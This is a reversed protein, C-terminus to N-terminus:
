GFFTSSTEFIPDTPLTAWNDTNSLTAKYSYIKKGGLSNIDTANVFGLDQTAAPSLNLLAKSGPTTSRLLVRSANTAATCNFATNIINTQNSAFQHTTGANSLTLTGVTIGSTTFTVSNTVTM